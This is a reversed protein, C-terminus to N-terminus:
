GRIIGANVRDKIVSKALIYDAYSPAKIKVQDPTVRVSCSIGTAALIADELINREAQFPRHQHCASQIRIAANKRGSSRSKLEMIKNPRQNVVFSLRAM